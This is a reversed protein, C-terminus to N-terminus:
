PFVPVSLLPGRWDRKARPWDITDGKTCLNIDKLRAFTGTVSDGSHFIMDQGHLDCCSMQVGNLATPHNQEIMMSWSTGIETICWSPRCSPSVCSMRLDIAAGARPNRLRKGWKSRLLGKLRLTLSKPAWLPYVTSVIITIWMCIWTYTCKDMPEYM